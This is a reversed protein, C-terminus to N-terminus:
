STMGQSYGFAALVVQQRKYEPEGLMDVQPISTSSTPCAVPRGETHSLWDAEEEAYDERGPRGTDGSWVLM